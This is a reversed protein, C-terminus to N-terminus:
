QKDLKEVQRTVTTNQTSTYNGWTATNSYTKGPAAANQWHSDDSVSAQYYVAVMPYGSIYKYDSITITLDTSGDTNKVAHFAPNTGKSFTCGAYNSDHQDYDNKYFKAYGSADVYSAGTPIHDTITIIGEDSKKTNLMLRYTLVGNM